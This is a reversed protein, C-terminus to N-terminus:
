GGALLPWPRIQVPKLGFCAGTACLAQQQLRAVIAVGGDAEVLTVTNVAAAGESGIERHTGIRDRVADEELFPDLLMPTEGMSTHVWVSSACRRLVERLSRRGRIFFLAALAALQILRRRIHTLVRMM